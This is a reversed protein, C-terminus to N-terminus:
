VARQKVDEDEAEEHKKIVAEAIATLLTTQISKNLREKFRKAEKDDLEEMLKRAITVCRGAHGFGIGCPSFYVRMM